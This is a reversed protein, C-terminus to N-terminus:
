RRALRLDRFAGDVTVVDGLADCGPLTVSVDRVMAGGIAGAQVTRAMATLGCSTETVEAELSVRVVGGSRMPSAPFTYVEAATQNGIRTLFGGQRQVARAVSGPADEWIQSGASLAGPESARLRLLRPGTWMLAVRRFDAFDSVTTQVEVPEADGLAVDFTAAFTMAPVRVVLKGLADTRADFTLADHNIMVDTDTHCPADLVLTVIAGPEARATLGVDCPLGFPSFDDELPFASDILADNAEIQPPQVPPTLPVLTAAPPVPLAPTRSERRLTPAAEPGTDRIATDDVFGSQMLHGCFFAALLTAVILIARRPDFARLFDM